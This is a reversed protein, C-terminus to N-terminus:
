QPKSLYSWIDSWSILKVKLSHVFQQCFIYSAPIGKQATIVNTHFESHISYQQIQRWNKLNPFNLTCNKAPGEGRGLQSGRGGRCKGSWLYHWWFTLQWSGHLPSSINLLFNSSINFKPWEAEGKGGRGGRNRAVIYRPHIASDIIWPQWRSKRLYESWYLQFLGILFSQAQLYVQENALHAPATVSSVTSHLTPPHPPGHEDWWCSSWGCQAVRDILRRSRSYKWIFWQWHVVRQTPPCQRHFWLLYM